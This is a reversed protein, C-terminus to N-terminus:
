PASQMFHEPWEACLAEVEAGPVDRRAYALRQWATLLRALYVHAPGPIRSRSKRLCDEETDGGVLEVADRHLLTVLAGRYLLSLAKLLEGERALRAAAGALDDPLSEPRVDLGFLTDPPEYTSRAAGRLGAFRQVLAHILLVVAVGLGAWVLIRLIQAVAEIIAGWTDSTQRPEPKPKEPTKVPRLVTREEYTQFEPREFIRKIEVAPNRTAHTFAQQAAQAHSPAPSLLALGVAVALATLVSARQAPDAAAQVHRAARAEMGRLAVELDWGELATRRNLYLAFGGAVYCPELITVVIFYAGAFAWQRVSDQGYLLQFLGMGADGTAPVFVDYVALVALALALEFHLCVMTLGAANTGVRRHLQQRRLRAARGKQRELQWVPLNFSRALFFRYVTLSTLLGPTLAHPLSRLTDRIRPLAGFVGSALVQLVVRDLVPKLWWVLMVAWLPPLLVLALACLPVFVALWPGYVERMWARVMAFGLDIAEWPNRLRLAVSLRDLQV